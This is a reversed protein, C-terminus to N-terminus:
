SQRYPVADGFTELLLGREAETLNTTVLKANWGHFREGLRDLDGEETMLFLASTGPTIQERITELAATGDLDRAVVQLGEHRLLIAVLGELVVPHDDALSVRLAM